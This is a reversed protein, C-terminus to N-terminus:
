QECAKDLDGAGVEVPKRDLSQFGNSSMIFHGFLRYLARPAVFSRPHPEQLQPLRATSNIRDDGLVLRHAVDVSFKSFDAAHM